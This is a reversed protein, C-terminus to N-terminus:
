LVIVFYGVIVFKIDSIWPRTNPLMVCKSSHIPSSSNEKKISLFLSHQEKFFLQKDM